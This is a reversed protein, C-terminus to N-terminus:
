RKSARDVIKSSFFSSERKDSTASNMFLILQRPAGFVQWRAHWLIRYLSQLRNRLIKCDETTSRTWSCFWGWGWDASIYSAEFTNAVTVDLEVSRGGRRKWLNLSAGDSKKLAATGDSKRNSVALGVPQLSRHRSRPESFLDESLM